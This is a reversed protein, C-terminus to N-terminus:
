SECNVLMDLADENCVDLYGLGGDLYDAGAGGTLTDDGSAGYLHDVGADGYLTDAAMKGYINDDGSGGYIKSGSTAASLGDNYPSGTLSGITACVNDAEGPQGDNAVGDLTVTVAVTRQSYSVRSGFGGCLTDAGEGGDLSLYVIQSTAPAILTDNGAGGKAISTKAGSAGFDIYDNGAGADVYTWPAYPGPFTLTDDKAGLYVDLDYSSGFGSGCTAELSTAGQTCGPGVVIPSTDTLKIKSSNSGSSTVVVQNVRSLGAEYIVTNSSVWVYNPTPPPEASAPGGVFVVTSVTVGAVVLASRVRRM